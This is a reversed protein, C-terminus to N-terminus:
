DAAADGPAARSWVRLHTAISFAEIRSGDPGGPITADSELGQLQADLDLVRAWWDDFPVDGRRVARLWDAPEGEIPLALRRTTLLEM